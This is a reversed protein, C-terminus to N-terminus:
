SPHLEQGELRRVTWLSIGLIEAVQRRNQTAGELFARLETVALRFSALEDNKTSTPASPASWKARIGVEQAGTDTVSGQL